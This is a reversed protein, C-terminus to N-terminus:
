AAPTEATEGVDVGDAAESDTGEDSSAEVETQEGGKAQEDRRLRLIITDDTIEIRDFRRIMEANKPDKYLDKALNEQSMGDIVEQPVKEGKVEADALTVVLVGNELTVEFTASANFFRGDGGPIMDTPVSIDGSVQGDKIAVYARGRLKEEENILANIEDATLVLDESPLEEDLAHKFTDLRGRLESMQEATFEVKPLETPTEATYKKVQSTIVFYFGIGGCIMLAVMVGFAGLCGYLCGRSSKKEVVQEEGPSEYAQSM